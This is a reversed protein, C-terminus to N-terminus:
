MKHSGPLQTSDEIQSLRFCWFLHELTSKKKSHVDNELIEEKGAKETWEFSAECYNGQDQSPRKLADYM